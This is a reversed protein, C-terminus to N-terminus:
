DDVHRGQIRRGRAAVGGGASVAISPSPDLAAKTRMPPKCVHEPIPYTFYLKMWERDEVHM